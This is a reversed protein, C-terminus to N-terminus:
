RRRVMRRTPQQRDAISGRHVIRRWEQRDTYLEEREVDALNIERATLAEGVGEMWRRRPRGVPRRGHPRYQLYKRPFQDENMRQVHGYWRLKSKDVVELISEVGLERRIDDNRMRDRRTVGRIARLARMEAAQIKSRTRSTLSWAESGYTLIPRLITTYIATKCKRPIYRDKLLPYLLGTNSNYKSIRNNLEIEQRNETEFCAGLYKFDAVQTLRRGEVVVDVEADRRGVYMVETKNINIKMEKERLGNEWRSMASQLQQESDTIVAIDDAYAFTIENENDCIEKM